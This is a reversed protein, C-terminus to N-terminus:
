YWHIGSLMLVTMLWFAVVLMVITTFTKRSIVIPKDDKSM